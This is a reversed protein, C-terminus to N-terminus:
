FVVKITKKPSELKLGSIDMEEIKAIADEDQSQLLEMAKPNGLMKDVPMDMVTIVNPRKTWKYASNTETIEGDVRVLFTMRMGKLMQGMMAGMGDMMQAGMEEMGADMESMEGMAAPASEDAVDSEEAIVPVIELTAPQGAAFNFTYVQDSGSDESEEAVGQGMDASGGQEEMDGIPITIANVDEFSYVAEYGKWGQENKLRKSGALKVSEGFKEVNDEIMDKFIDTEEPPPSQQEGGEQQMGAFMDGMGDMMQTIQPSMFERVVIKGSGDRNVDLLTTSEICGSVFLVALLTIGLFTKKM